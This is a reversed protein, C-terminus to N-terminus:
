MADVIITTIDILTDYVDNMYNVCDYYDGQLDQPKVDDTLREVENAMRYLADTVNRLRKNKIYREIASACDWLMAVQSDGWVNVPVEDEYDLTLWVTERNNEVDWVYRADTVWANAIKDLQEVLKTRTYIAKKTYTNRDTDNALRANIKM